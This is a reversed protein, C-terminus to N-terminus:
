ELTTSTLWQYARARLQCELENWPHQPNLDHQEVAFQRKDNNINQVSVSLNEKESAMLPRSVFWSVSGSSMYEFGHTWMNKAMHTLFMIQVNIIQRNIRVQDM